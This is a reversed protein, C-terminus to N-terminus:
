DVNCITAAIVQNKRRVLNTARHADATRTIAHGLVEPLTLDRRTVSLEHLAGGLRATFWPVSHLCGQDTAPPTVGDLVVISGGQGSAPLGVSAYDEDPRAPDGPVSILESRMRGTQVVGERAEGFAPLRQDFPGSLCTLRRNQSPNVSEASAHRRM